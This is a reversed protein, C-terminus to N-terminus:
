GGTEVIQLSLSGASTLTATRFPGIVKFDILYAAVNVGCVATMWSQLDQFSNFMAGSDQTDYIANELAWLFERKEGISESIARIRYSSSHAKPLIFGRCAKYVLLGFTRPNDIVPTISLADPTLAFGSVEGCRILSRVVLDISGNQYKLSNFDGLFARVPDRFFWVPTKDMPLASPLAEVIEFANVGSPFPFTKVSTDTFTVRWQSEWKGAVDTEGSAFTYEVKGAAADTITASKTYSTSGSQFIFKVACGTLNVVIGSEDRLIDTVKALNGRSVIAPAFDM